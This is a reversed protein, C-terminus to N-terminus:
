TTVEITSTQTVARVYLNDAGLALDYESEGKRMAGQPWLLTGVSDSVPTSAQKAVRVAYPGVNQVLCETAGVAIQQWTTTATVSTQAM